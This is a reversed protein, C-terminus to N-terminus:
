ATRDILGFVYKLFVIYYGNQQRVFVFFEIMFELKVNALSAVFVSLSPHRDSGFTEYGREMLGVLIPSKHANPIHLSQM